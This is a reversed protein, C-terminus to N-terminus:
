LSDIEKLLLEAPPPTFVVSFPAAWSYRIIGEADIVFCGPLPVGLGSGMGYRHFVEWQADSLIPYPAHLVEAVYSTMELDTSSVVILHANRREFESYAERL